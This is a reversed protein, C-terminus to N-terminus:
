SWIKGEFFDKSFRFKEENMRGMIRRMTLDTSLVPEAKCADKLWAAASRALLPNLLSHRVARKIPAIELPIRSTSRQILSKIITSTRTENDFFTNRFNDMNAPRIHKQRNELGVSFFWEEWKSREVVNFPRLAVWPIRFADAVIAGHLSETLVVECSRIYSIITDVNDTPNIYLIDADACLTPWVGARHTRWHPMFGFQHKSAAQGTIGLESILLGSDAIAYKESIGLSVCTNKGRVFYVRWKTTDQIRPTCDGFDQVYAAGFVVKRADEPYPHSLVSGIGIFLEDENQDFIGPFIKPFLWHNLADGFNPVVNWHQIKM